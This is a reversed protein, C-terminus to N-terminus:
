FKGELALFLQIEAEVSWEDTDKDTREKSSASM